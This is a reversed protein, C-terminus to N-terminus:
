VAMNVSESRYRSIIKNVVITEKETYAPIGYPRLILQFEGYKLYWEKAPTPIHNNGYEEYAEFVEKVFYGTDLSHTSESFACHGFVKQWMADVDALLHQIAIQNVFTHVDNLEYVLYAAVNQASYVNGM